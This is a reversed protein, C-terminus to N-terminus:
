TYKKALRGITLGQVIISFVVVCYTILLLIDRIENDPLSLVLAVSLGGRLGGWTLIPVTGRAFEKFIKFIFVPLFILIFRILLLLPIMIIGIYLASINSIVLLLEFGILMFLLVNLIEDIMEWFGNLYDRTQQSMANSHALNGIILGSVVMAIPGSLHMYRALEYGGMVLALTLLIEVKYNDVHYMLYYVLFGLIFGLVIGGFVEEVFLIIVHSVEANGQALVGLLATFIVVAMGDNFLSEGVVNIELSKPIGARKLIALVAIPDTPSILAGFLFAYIIDIQIDFITLLYHLSYGVAITSCLTGFLAMTLIMLRHKKLLGWDVHLAGAFLLFSLMGHMVTDSFDLGSLVPRVVDSVSPILIMGVSSVMALIMVGITTPLKIFRYNIYAFLGCLSMLISSITIIGM